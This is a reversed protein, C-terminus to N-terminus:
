SSLIKLVYLVLLMPISISSSVHNVNYKRKSSEQELELGPEVM